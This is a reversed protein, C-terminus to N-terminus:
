KLIIPNFKKNKEIEENTPNILFYLPAKHSKLVNEIQTDDEKLMVHLKPAIDQACIASVITQDESDSFAYIECDPHMLAIVLSCEGWSNNLIVIPFKSSLAILVKQNNCLIRLRRKIATYIEIGRYRYRDKVLQVYDDEDIKCILSRLTIPRKRYGNKDKVLWNFIFPPFIYAMIVVTFMGVITLEALSHLAPHRAFILTGIGIFMILASIIISSKYSKLMRRNYALEYQCGETMFITYDDGQGFIFTALIVNVVNFQIDLISMFGLIWVWSIAMPIFSVLALEINGLSFWLFFFVILGCAWGIYNFDDSLHTAISANMSDIDFAYSSTTQSEIRSIVESIHESSVRLIDIVNCGKEVFLNSAYVTTSLIDFYAIDQPLFSTCLLQYFPKFTEPTFGERRAADSVQKQLMAGNKNIFSRWLDLRKCQESYSCLMGSCSNIDEILGQSKLHQLIPQLELSKNLAGGLLSDSSVVYVNKISSIDSMFKQSYVMNQKQEDDMYNIHSIDTDFSTSTSFYGLVFTLILIFCVIWRKEELSMDGISNIISKCRKRKPSHVVHPLYLLVFMITGILLLSSFLGLDRLAMSKLPVLALFAGVTTINGVVLPLVIEKLASKVNNTHQLHAIFHLPYNVAIGLIVSSIGLVIISVQDHILAISGLAFLWGWGISLIIFLINWISRFVFFLLLIILIVAIVIALISDNKIQKANGVAIVPGGTLLIDVEEFKNQTKKAYQEIRAQLIANKETESNGYPSTILVIAQQMDSSFIYGNYNEYNVSTHQSQLKAVVPAFLNLPDYQLNESFFGAVPFLLSKKANAIQTPIFQPNNLLCDFHQYDDETLFYPINAYVFRPIEAMKKMDIQYTVDLDISDRQVINVFMDIAAILTDTNAQLTDKCRFIVLFKNSGSIKQYVKLASQYKNNLPLFDTIDEKYTQRSVAICLIITLLFFSMVSYFRHRHMWQYIRVILVSM